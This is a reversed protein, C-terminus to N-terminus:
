VRTGELLPLLEENPLPRLQMADRPLAAGQSRLLRHREALAAGFMINHAVSVVQRAAAPQLFSGQAWENFAGMAPGCWIQYDVKRDPEGRNAWNSSLGLYWRFVLSMQHKPDRAARELQKPDRINFFDVCRVWVDDFSAQFYDEIKAQDAAPVADFRDYNKYTEYLKGARMAFLTGRKLVQVKVGMEFMDAAPAMAVDAQQADALMSRVLDSSGSEVCAQNVTGTVLYDAGMAFAAAASLPTSIGGAAGIRIRRPSRDALRDRLAILTPLLALAPRNDTHGGSDAEATLDDCMAIHPALEAEDRTISGAALLAQIMRTPPPSLFREAVEVRSVKAMVRNPVVVDGASDRHIGTVRYRVVHPTLALYASAEITRVGRSLYLDVVASELDQENPSHILNFGYPAGSGDPPGLKATLTDIAREVRDLGLGAAGFFSLLEAGAMAEVLEESAIGNAMAGAVYALRVRHDARFDADGLRWAPAAPAHALVEFPDSHTEGSEIADSGLSVSGGRVVGHAENIRVVSVPGGLQRLKAEIEHPETAVTDDGSWEGIAHLEPDISSGAAASSM